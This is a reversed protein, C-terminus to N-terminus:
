TGCAPMWLPCGPAAKRGPRWGRRVAAACAPPSPHLERFELDPQCEQKQIFHCHWHLRAEFVLPVGRRRRSLQVVERLSLTGWALHPSLRSCSEFATRPSSLERHYRVGRGSLFSELVALEQLRGGLQRGPFPDPALALESASPIAGAELGELPLLSQPPPAMPEAMRQEWRRAWASRSAMRRIVGASPQEIWPIGHSEAWRAVRRDRARELVEEAIGTRVVLAQGLEALDRRLEELSEACFPWQRASADGQRWMEPEVVVLPLVPGLRSAQLLPQHDAVRLDRKFWVVQVPSM